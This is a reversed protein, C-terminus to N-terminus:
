SPCLFVRPQGGTAKLERDRGTWESEIEVVGMERFAYHRFSSWKWDGPDRVLGRKVPKWGLWNLTKEQSLKRLQGTVVNRSRRSRSCGFNGPHLAQHDALPTRVPSHRRSESGRCKAPVRTEPGRHCLSDFGADQAAKLLEGNKLGGWGCYAVSKVEHQPLCDRLKHPINEDLLVKM